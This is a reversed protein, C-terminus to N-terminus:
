RGRTNSPRRLTGLYSEATEEESARKPVGNTKGPSNM